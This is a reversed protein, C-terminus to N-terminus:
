LTISPDGGLLRWATLDLVRCLGARKDSYAPMEQLKDLDGTEILDSGFTALDRDLDCRVFRASLELDLRGSSL